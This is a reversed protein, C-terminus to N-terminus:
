MQTWHRGNDTSSFLRGGRTLFVLRNGVLSFRRHPQGRGAAFQVPHVGIRTVVAAHRDEDGTVARGFRLLSNHGPM